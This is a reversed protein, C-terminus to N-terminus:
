LVEHPVQSRLRRCRSSASLADATATPSLPLHISVAHTHPQPASHTHPSSPPPPLPLLTPGFPRLHVCPCAQLSHYCRCIFSAHARAHIHGMAVCKIDFVHPFYINLLEFFESEATPLPQATLVQLLTGPLCLMCQSVHHWRTAYAADPRASAACLGGPSTTGQEGQM